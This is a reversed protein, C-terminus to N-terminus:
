ALKVLDGGESEDDMTTVFAYKYKNPGRPPTKVWALLRGLLSIKQQIKDCDGNVILGKKFFLSMLHFPLIRESPSCIM